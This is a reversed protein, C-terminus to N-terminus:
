YAIYDKLPFRAIKPVESDFLQVMHGNQFFRMCDFPHFFKSFLSNFDRTASEVDPTENDWFEPKEFASM